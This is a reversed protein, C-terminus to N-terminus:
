KVENEIDDVSADMNIVKFFTFFKTKIRVTCIREKVLKFSVTGNILQKVTLLSRCMRYGAEEKGRYCITRTNLDM